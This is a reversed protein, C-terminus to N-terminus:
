HKMKIRFFPHDADLVDDFKHWDSVMEVAHYEDDEDVITLDSDLQEDTMKNLENLLERFTKSTRM